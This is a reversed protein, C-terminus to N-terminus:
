QIGLLEKVRRVQTRAVPVRSRHRDDLVLSALGGPWPIFEVVRALNILYQRHVRLFTPPLRESLAQLSLGTRYEARETKVFAGEDAAAIWLIEAPDVLVTRGEQALAIRRPAVPAATPSVSAPPPDDEVSAAALRPALRTQLQAVTQAIRAPDFPKLIYDFARIRFAEVAWDDYATAFVILPAGPAKALAEAVQFGNMEPMQLDLFLVDPALTQALRLAEAGTAAEGLIAVAGTEILLHRLEDRVLPEDDVILATLSGTM